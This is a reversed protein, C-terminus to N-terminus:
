LPYGAPRLDGPYGIWWEFGDTNDGVMQIRNNGDERVNSIRFHFDVLQKVDTKSNWVTIKDGKESDSHEIEWDRWSTVRDKGLDGSSYRGKRYIVNEIVFERYHQMPTYIHVLAPCLDDCYLGSLKWNGIEKDPAFAWDSNYSYSAGIIASPLAEKDWSKFRTHLITIDKAYVNQLNQPAWGMQFVPDNPGKWVSIREYQIDSHYTKLGDDNTHVLSDKFVSGPYLTLGDTQLFWGGVQKYDTAFIKPENYMDHSNFPPDTMTVGHLIFTQQGPSGNWSKWMRLSAADSKVSEYSRDPNAQYVYDSGTLVGYGTAAYTGNEEAYQWHVASKVYAWHAFHVWAQSETLTMHNEGRKGTKGQRNTDMWYVGPPFYLVKKASKYNDLSIPGPQMVLIENEEYVSFPDKERELPPSVFLFLVHKPERGVIAGDAARFVIQSEIDDFEISIQRIKPNAKDFPILLEISNEDLAKDTNVVIDENNFVPKVHCSSFWKKLDVGSKGGDRATLKVKITNKYVIQTYAMTQQKVLADIGDDDKGTPIRDLPWPRQWDRPRQIKGKGGRPLTEFVFSPQEDVSVKWHLSERVFDARKWGDWSYDTRGNPPKPQVCFDVDPSLCLSTDEPATPPRVILPMQGGPQPQQLKEKEDEPNKVNILVSATKSGPDVEPSKKEKGGPTTPAGGLEKTSSTTGAIVGAEGSSTNVWTSSVPLGCVPDILHLFFSFIFHTAPFMM